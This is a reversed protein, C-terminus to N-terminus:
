KGLAPLLVSDWQWAPSGVITTSTPVKGDTSGSVTYINDHNKGCFPTTEFSVRGDGYLVNQGAGRHNASNGKRVEASASLENAAATVDYVGSKGPNYDAAVVFDNVVENNLRYSKNTSDPYPNAYSYSLNTPLQSFNSRLKANGTNAGGGFGDRLAESSPCVFTEPAIPEYNSGIKDSPGSNTTGQTRILLFLAAPVNNPGTGFSGAFPDSTTAGKPEYPVGKPPVADIFPMPTKKPDYSADYFTRPYNGKNASAYAVLLQGISRLNSGCKVRNASERTRGLVPLLVGILVAIIGVVVLLEV